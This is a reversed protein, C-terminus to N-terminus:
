KLKMSINRGKENWTLCSYKNLRSEIRFIRPCALLGGTFQGTSMYRELRAYGKSAESPDPKVEIVFSEPLLECGARQWVAEGFVLLEKFTFGENRTKIAIRDPVGNTPIMVDLIDGELFVAYGKEALSLAAMVEFFRHTSTDYVIVSERPDFGEEKLFNIALMNYHEQSRTIDEPKQSSYFLMLIRHHDAFFLISRNELEERLKRFRDLGIGVLTRMINHRTFLEELHLWKESSVPLYAGEELAIISLYRPSKFELINWLDGTARVVVGLRGKGISLIKSANEFM